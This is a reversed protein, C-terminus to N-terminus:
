GWPTMGPGMAAALGAALPAAVILGDVRDLLGGHGPITHGSDKVGFGRKVASEALDGLQSVVALLVAAFVAFGSGFCVGVLASACLGGIGGSWTKGPSIRPALKPGGVLRGALYAGVDSAWVVLLLFLTNRLGAHGDLRLWWLCACGPLLYVFGSVLRLWPPLHLGRWPHRTLVAWEWVLACAGAAVLAAWALGGWWVASLAALGLVVASLTRVRLDAWRRARGAAAAGDALAPVSGASGAAM